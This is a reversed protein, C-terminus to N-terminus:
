EAAGAPCRGADAVLRPFPRNRLGAFRLDDLEWGFDGVSSDAGLRFRLQITRGALASLDIEIRSHAPWDPNQGAFAPRGWLPNAPPEGADPEQRTEEAGLPARYPVAAYQGLDVWSAGGDLSIEIVGGDWFRRTGGAEAASEEFRHRHAFSLTVVQGSALELPPSVLRLDAAFPPGDARWAHNGDDGSVRQWGALLNSGDVRWVPTASEVDDATSAAPEEDHNLRSQLPVQVAPVARDPHHLRITFRATAMQELAATAAVPVTVEVRGFPQIRPVPVPRSGLVVGPTPSTVTVSAGEITTFGHNLLVLDIGGQDGADVIRDGDCDRQGARLKAVALALRGATGFDEVVGHFDSSERPPAVAGSGAGRRAFARAMVEFDGPDAALAAALVADRQELFTASTPTLKLGAVVYDSMRRRAEAFGAPGRADKHREILAVQAQHLMTAWIEGANHVESNRGRAQVPHTDPLPEDDALHRLTLANRALDTSYPVRRIGFYPDSAAYSGAAYVGGLADRPRLMMHLAIFDGWGESLAACQKSACAALRQHLYHGWEHAVVTGDVSGDRRFSHDVGARSLEATVRGARRLREGTAWAVGVAPIAVAGSSGGLTPLADPQEADDNVVIVGVAGARQAAEVKQVYSCQGREVLAIAGRLENQAAECGDQPPAAADVVAVVPGRARLPQAGGFEAGSAPYSGAVGSPGVIALASEGSLRRETWLYMQMRPSRGDAPTSMNANNLRRGRTDQAEALLPDAEIGGRGYNRQQANGAAEDFGSDYYWDHLWNTVYFLQTISARTQEPSALADAAVDYRHDFVGPATSLALADGDSLGNREDADAYAVVNNGVLQDAGAPLWPDAGGDRNRNLGSIALLVPPAGTPEVEGPATGPYPSMDHLPGDCPEHPAAREAWVRYSVTADAVLNRRQLVQRDDAAIVYGFSDRGGDVLLDLELAHAPELRDPMAYLVPKVRVPELSRAPGRSTPVAGELRVLRVGDRGVGGDRLASAPISVGYLDEVAAAIARAAAGASDDAVPAPAATPHLQGTIAVLTLDRRMLVNVRARHIERGGIRQRFQVIIGGRGTDHVQAVETSDLAGPHLGYWAAHRALYRRAAAEPHRPGHGPLPAAGAAWLFTPAGTREDTAAVAATAEEAGASGPPGRLRAPARPAALYADHDEPASWDEPVLLAAQLHAEPAEVPAACRLWGLLM